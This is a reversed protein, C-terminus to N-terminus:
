KPEKYDDISKTHGGILRRQYEDLIIRSGRGADSAQSKSYHTKAIKVLKWYKTGLEDATMAKIEGLKM